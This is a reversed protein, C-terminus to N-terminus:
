HSGPHGDDIDDEARLRGRIQRRLHVPLNAARKLILSELAQRLDVYIEQVRAGLALELLMAQELRPLCEGRELQSVMSPSRYGLLIALQKQQLGRSRRLRYLHNRRQHKHSM